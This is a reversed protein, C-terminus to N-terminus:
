GHKLSDEIISDVHDPYSSVYLARILNRYARNLMRIYGDNEWESENLMENIVQLGMFNGGYGVGNLTSSRVNLVADEVSAKLAERDSLSIGGILFDIMNGRFSNYRRKTRAIENIGADESIAKDIQTKLYNVMMNYEDSYSGDENFMKSPKIFQTKLQDSRVEEATGYFECVNDLTPALGADQDQKQIDPNLYKKIWRCGCMKAIDEYLYQQTIDNVILLPIAGPYKNMAEIIRELMSSADPTIKPCLIVTPILPLPNSAQQPSKNPALPNIINITLIKELYSMMEPTDIPDLFTYIRPNQVRATNNSKDNVFCMDAYGSTMTMGDYEKVINEGEPSIGIDIYVDIGYKKYIQYLTDTIEKNGNTSILCINYVDDLTCPRSKALIRKNIEKIIKDFQRIIDSPSRCDNFDMDCLANFIHSALLCVSSTGDGVEKVVYQTMDTLLDQVSREIPNLFQLNKVITHGDKSHMVNVNTASNDVYKTIATTSGNPGFSLAVADAIIQLTQKQVDRTIEKSVINSRISNKRM